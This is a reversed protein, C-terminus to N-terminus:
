HGNATSDADLEFIRRQVSILEAFLANTKQMALTWRQESDDSVDEAMSHLAELAERLDRRLESARDQLNRYQIDRIENTTM